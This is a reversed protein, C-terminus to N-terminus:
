MHAAVTSVCGARWFRTGHLTGPPYDTLPPFRDAFRRLVVAVTITMETLNPILGLEFGTQELVVELFAGEHQEMKAPPIDFTWTEIHGKAKVPGFLPDHRFGINSPFRPVVAARHARAVLHLKRHKDINHLANLVALTWRVSSWQDNRRRYPQLLHIARRDREGLQEIGPPAIRPKKAKGSWQGRSTCIPFASIEDFRAPNARPWRRLHLQYVLHDLASRLNFMIEGAMFGWHPEIDPLEGLYFRYELGGRHVKPTVPWPERPPWRIEVEKKLVRL